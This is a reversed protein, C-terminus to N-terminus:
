ANPKKSSNMITWPVPRPLATEPIQAMFEEFEKKTTMLGIQCDARPLPKGSLSPVKGPNGPIYERTNLITSRAMGQIDLKLNYNNIGPSAFLLSDFFEFASM